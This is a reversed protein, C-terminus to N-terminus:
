DLKKTLNRIDEKWFKYDEYNHWKPLLTKARILAQRAQSEDDLELYVKSLVLYNEPFDPAIRLAESMYGVAKDLDKIVSERRLSSGPVETYILALIRYAGGYEYSPDLEIVMKCDKIMTKLGDQYGIVKSQYYIGTDVAHYYYCAPEKPMAEICAEAYKIGREALEIRESRKDAKHYAYYYAKAAQWNSMGPQVVPGVSIKACSFIFISLVAVAAIQIPKM